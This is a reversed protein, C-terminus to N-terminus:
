LITGPIYMCYLAVDGGGLFFCRTDALAEKGIAPDARGGTPLAVRSRKHLGGLVLSTLVFRYNRKHPRGGFQFGVAATNHERLTCAQQKQQQLLQM